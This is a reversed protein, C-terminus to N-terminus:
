PDSLAFLQYQCCRKGVRILEGGHFRAWSVQVGSSHINQRSNRCLRNEQGHEMGFPQRINGQIWVHIRPHRARTGQRRRRISTTAIRVTNTKRLLGVSISVYSTLHIYVEIPVSRPLLAKRFIKKCM